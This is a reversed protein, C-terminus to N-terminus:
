HLCGEPLGLERIEWDELWELLERHFLWRPCYDWWFEPVWCSVGGEGWPGGALVVVEVARVM